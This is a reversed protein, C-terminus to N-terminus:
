RKDSASVADEATRNRGHKALGVDRQIYFRRAKCDRLEMVPVALRHEVAALPVRVIRTQAVGLPEGGAVVAPNPQWPVGRISKVYVADGRQGAPMRRVTGGKVVRETTGIVVEDSRDVLGVMIGVRNRVEGKDKTNKVPMFMVLEGFPVLAKRYSKQVRREYATKRDSVSRQFRSVGARLVGCGM